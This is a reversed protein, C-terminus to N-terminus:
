KFIASVIKNIKGQNKVGPADESGNMVDIAEAGTRKLIEEANDENIGGALIVPKSSNKKILDFLDEDAKLNKNAVDRGHRPDVLIAEIETSCLMKIIETLSSTGFQEIASEESMPFTKITGIGKKKLEAAIEKTEQYNENFHLQVVDPKVNDALTLIKEFSGGTVMVARYGAPIRKRLEAARQANLNWPVYLPYETVLGINEVGERVCIDIDNENMLGCIKCNKKSTMMRYFNETETAKAIATGVLAANAGASIALRVEAPNKISSETVVFCGEPVMKLLAQTHSVDGDDRELKLIDRNNIGVLKAGLKKVLEFDEAKHTEVFPDLGLKLAEFYLYELERSELCSCMLLIASAGAELTEVLDKKTHIFDKRLVPVNVAETVERLMSLSGHFEKEETVVSLAPAGANVLSRAYDAAPRGNLLEGDKPSYRKIDAIVINRDNGTSILADLFKM